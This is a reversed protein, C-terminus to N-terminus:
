ATVGNPHGGSTRKLRSIVGSAAGDGYRRVGCPVTGAAGGFEVVQLLRSNKVYAETGEARDADIVESDVFVGRVRRVDGSTPARNGSLARSPM